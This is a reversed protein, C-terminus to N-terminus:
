RRAAARHAAFAAWGAITVPWAACAAALVLDALGSAAPRERVVYLVLASVGALYTAIAFEFM